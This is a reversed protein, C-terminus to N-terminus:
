KQGAPKELFIQGLAIKLKALFHGLFHTQGVKPGTKGAKKFFHAVRLGNCNSPKLGKPGNVWKKKKILLFILFYLIYIVLLL